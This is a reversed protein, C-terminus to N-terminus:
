RQYKRKSPNSHDFKSLDPLVPKPANKNNGIGDLIVRLTVTEGSTLELPEAEVKLNFSGV